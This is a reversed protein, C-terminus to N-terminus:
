RSVSVAINPFYKRVLGIMGIDQIILGDAGYSYVNNVFEIVNEIEREKYLINLTIFVKVGRLHCINIIDELDDDSPNDAYYRANFSKGGIYLADCGANVAATVSEYSGAPALIEPKKM